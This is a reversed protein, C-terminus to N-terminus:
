LKSQIVPQILISCHKLPKGCLMVSRAALVDLANIFGRGIEEQEEIVCLETCGLIISDCGCSFLSQSASRFKDMDAPKGAKINQYILEMVLQQNNEDPEVSEIELRSLATQFLGTKITGTTAMLGVKKSGRMKLCRATETVMNVLPIHLSAAMEDFFAHSTVCPVALYDAGLQELMRATQLMSEAPSPGERNLLYATRDPVNPRNFVIIDLHEQDTKVDTMDVIRKLLLATAMPGLGGIIGLTKM